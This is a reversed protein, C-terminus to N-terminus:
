RAEEVAAAKLRRETILAIAVSGLVCATFLYLGWATEVHGVGVGKILVIYLALLFVDAMSLKGAISIVGIWRPGGVLGTQILD